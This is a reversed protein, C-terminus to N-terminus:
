VSIIVDYSKNLFEKTKFLGLITLIALVMLTVVMNILVIKNGIFSKNGIFPLVCILM